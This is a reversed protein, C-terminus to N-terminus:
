VSVPQPVAAAAKERRTQRVEALLRVITALNVGAIIAELVTGGVSGSLINNALWLLTCILLSIRMVVGRMRFVAVTALCSAAIPLWGAAGQAFLAGIAVNVAIFVGIWWGSRSKLSVLMRLCSSLASGSAPYNGLLIFHIVYAISEAAILVKLRTDCKQLFAAVGLVLAVYGFLQAPSCLSGTM